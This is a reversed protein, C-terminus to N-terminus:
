LLLSTLQSFDNVFAVGNILNWNVVGSNFGIFDIKNFRTSDLDNISDGIFVCKDKEWKRKSFLMSLNLEKSIPSGLIELFFHEIGRKKCIERLEEQDSGSVISFDYKNHYTSLFELSGKITAADIVKRKVVGSYKKALTNVEDDSITGRRINEFFYRIKSYRSLGGNLRAYKVLQEVQYEPFDKFIMRFGELRIDNSDVLVGDFDFIIHKYKM